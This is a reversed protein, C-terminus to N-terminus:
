VSDDVFVETCKTYDEAIRSLHLCAQRSDEVRAHRFMMSLSILQDATMTPTETGTKRIKIRTVLEEPGGDRHRNVRAYKQRGFSSATPHGFTACFFDFVSWYIDTVGDKDTHMVGRILEDSFCRMKYYIPQDKTPAPIVKKIADAPNAGEHLVERTVTDVIKERRIANIVDRMTQADKDDLKFMLRELRRLSMTPVVEGSVNQYKCIAKLGGEEPFKSELKEFLERGFNSDFDKGYVECLFDYVSGEFTKGTNGKGRVEFPKKTPKTPMNTTKARQGDRKYANNTSVPAEPQSKTTNTGLPHTKIVALPM